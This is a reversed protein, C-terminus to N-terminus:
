GLPWLQYMKGLRYSIFSKSIVSALTIAPTPKCLHMILCVHLASKVPEDVHVSMMLRLLHPSFRRSLTNVSKNMSILESSIPSLTLSLFLFSHMLSFCDSCVFLFGFLSVSICWNPIEIFIHM